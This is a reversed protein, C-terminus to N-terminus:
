PGFRSAHFTFRSSYQTSRLKSGVPLQDSDSVVSGQGRTGSCVEYAGATTRAKTAMKHTPPQTPTAPPTAAQPMTQVGPDNSNMARSLAATVGDQVVGTHPPFQLVEVGEPAVLIDRATTSILTTPCVTELGLHHYLNERGPDYIRALVKKVGFIEKAVQCAM